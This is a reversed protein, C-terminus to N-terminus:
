MRLFVLYEQRYMTQTLCRPNEQTSNTSLFRCNYDIKYAGIKGTEELCHDPLQLALKVIEVVAFAKKAEKETEESKKTITKTVALM